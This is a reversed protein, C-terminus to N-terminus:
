GQEIDKLNIVRLSELPNASLLVRASGKEGIVDILTEKGLQRQFVRGETLVLPVRGEVRIQSSYPGVRVVIDAAEGIHTHLYAREDEKLEMGDAATEIADFHPEGDVGRWLEPKYHYIDGEVRVRM